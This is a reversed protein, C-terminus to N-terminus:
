SRHAAYHPRQLLLIQRRATVLRARLSTLEAEARQWIAVGPVWKADTAQQALLTKFTQATTRSRELQDLLQLREARLLRITEANKRLARSELWSSLRWRLM